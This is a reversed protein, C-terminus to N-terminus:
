VNQGTKASIESYPLGLKVGKEKGESEQVERYELDIKNGVL